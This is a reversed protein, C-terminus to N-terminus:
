AYVHMVHFFYWLLFIDSTGGETRWSMNELLSHKAGRTILSFYHSIFILDDSWLFDLIQLRLTMMQSPNRGLIQMKSFRSFILKEIYSIMKQVWIKMQLCDSITLSSLFIVESFKYLFWNKLGYQSVHRAFISELVPWLPMM